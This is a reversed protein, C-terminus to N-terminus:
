EIVLRPESTNFPQICQPRHRCILHKKSSVLIWVECYRRSKNIGSAELWLHRPNACTKSHCLHSVELKTNSINSRVFGQHDIDPHCWILLQHLQVKENPKLPSCTKVQVYGKSNCSLRTSQTIDVLHCGSAALRTCSKVLSLCIELTSPELRSVVGKVPKGSM